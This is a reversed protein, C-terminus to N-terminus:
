VLGSCVAEVWFLFECDSKSCDHSCDDCDFSGYIFCISKAILDYNSLVPHLSVLAKSLLTAGGYVIGVFALQLALPDLADNYTVGMGIPKRKDVPVIGEKIDQPIEQPKAVLKAYGRRVGINIIIMGIIIGSLIGATAMTNAVAPGDAWGAEALAAGAANATGHGGHFGYVPTLGFCFPLNPYLPMLLMAIGLGVVVQTQHVLGGQTVASLATKGFSEGSSATGLFSLGLVINVLQGFWGSITDSVPLFVPSFRGLVQPGILLGVFGALLSAPIYLSQLFKVKKRLFIGVLLLASLVSLDTLMQKM